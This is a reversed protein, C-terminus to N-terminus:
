QPPHILTRGSAEQRQRMSELIRDIDYNEEKALAEKIARVEAMVEDITEKVEIQSM